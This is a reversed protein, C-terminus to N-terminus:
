NTTALPELLPLNVAIACSLNSPPRAQETDQSYHHHNLEIRPNANVLSFVM